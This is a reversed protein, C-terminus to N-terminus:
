VVARENSCRSRVSITPSIILSDRGSGANSSRDSIASIPSDLIARYNGPLPLRSDFWMESGLDVGVEDQIPSIQVTVDGPEPSQSQPDPSPIRDSGSPDARSDPNMVHDTGPSISPSDPVTTDDIGPLNAQSDPSNTDEIRPASPDSGHSQYEMTAPSLNTDSAEEPEGIEPVLDGEVLDHMPSADVLTPKPEFPQTQSALGDRENSRAFPPTDSSTGTEDPTQSRDAVAQDTRGGTEDTVGDAKPMGPLLSQDNRQENSSSRSVSDKRKFGDDYSLGNGFDPIQLQLDHDSDRDNPHPKLPYDERTYRKLQETRGPRNDGENPVNTLSPRPFNEDHFSEFMESESSQLESHHTPNDKVNLPLTTPSTLPSGDSHTVQEWNVTSGPWLDMAEIAAKADGINKLPQSTADGHDNHNGISHKGDVRSSTGRRKMSDREKAKVNSGKGNATVTARRHGTSLPNKIARPSQIAKPGQITNPSWLVKPIGIARPSRVDKEHEAIFMQSSSTRLKDGPNWGRKPPDKDEM